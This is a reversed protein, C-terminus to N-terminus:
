LEIKGAVRSGIRIRPSSPLSPIPLEIVDCDLSSGVAPNEYKQHEVFGLSTPRQSSSNPFAAVMSGAPPCVTQEFDSQFSILDQNSSDQYLSDKSQYIQEDDSSM